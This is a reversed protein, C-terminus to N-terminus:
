EVSIIVHVGNEEIIDKDSISALLGGESDTVTIIRSKKELVKKNKKRLVKLENLWDALQGYETALDKLDMYDNRETSAKRRCDDALNSYYKIAIDLDM